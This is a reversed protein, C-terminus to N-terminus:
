TFVVLLYLRNRFGFVKNSDGGGGCATRFGRTPFLSPYGSPYLVRREQVFTLPPWARAFAGTSGHRLHRRQLRENSRVRRRRTAVTCRVRTGHANAPPSVRGDRGGGIQANRTPICAIVRSIIVAYDVAILKGASAMFFRAKRSVRNACLDPLYRANKWGRNTPRRFACSRRFQRLAM